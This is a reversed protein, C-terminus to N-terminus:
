SANLGPVHLTLSRIVPQRNKCLLYLPHTENCSEESRSSNHTLAVETSLAAIVHLGLLGHIGNSALHAEIRLLCSAM